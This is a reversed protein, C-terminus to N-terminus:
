GKEQCSPAELYSQDKSYEVQAGIYGLLEMARDSHEDVSESGLWVNVQKAFRYIQDMRKVQKGREDLDNQNICIADIWLTREKDDLRLYRLATALNPRILLKGSEKTQLDIIEIPTSELENGWTYSLAEFAHSENVDTVTSTYTTQDINLDPHTWACYEEPGNEFLYRGELTEYVTWDAHLNKQIDVITCPSPVIRHSERLPVHQMHLKIDDSHSSPQLNLLRLDGRAEDLPRYQFTM